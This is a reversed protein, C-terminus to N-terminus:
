IKNLQQWGRIKKHGVWCSGVVISRAGLKWIRLQFEQENGGWPYNEKDFLDGTEKRFNLYFQKTFGFMFGNIMNSENNTLDFISEIPNSQLQVGGLIGNSVPGYICKDNFRDNLIYSIYKNISENYEM